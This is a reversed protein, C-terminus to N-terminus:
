YGWESETDNQPIIQKPLSSLQRLPRYPGGALRNYRPLGTVRPEFGLSEAMKIQM